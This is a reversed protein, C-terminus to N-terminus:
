RRHVFGNAVLQQRSFMLMEVSMKGFFKGVMIYTYRSVFEFCCRLCRLISQILMVFCKGHGNIDITELRDKLLDVLTRITDILAM